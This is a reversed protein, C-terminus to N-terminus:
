TWLARFYKGFLECGKQVREENAKWGELDLDPDLGDRAIFDMAFIMEGMVYNWRRALYELYEDSHYDEPEKYQQIDEPLDEDKVMMYGQQNTSLRVLAPHIILALSHDLSWTDWGDIQVKNKARKNHQRTDWWTVLKWEYLVDTLKDFLEDSIINKEDLWSILNYVTRHKPPRGLSVKM